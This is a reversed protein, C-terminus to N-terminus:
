RLCATWPGPGARRTWTQAQAANGLQAFSCGLWGMATKDNPNLRVARVYMRRALEPNGRALAASGAERLALANNPELQAARAAEQLAGTLDGRERRVRSLYIHPLARNPMAAAAAAFETEAAAGNKQQWLSVGRRISPHNEPQARWQM